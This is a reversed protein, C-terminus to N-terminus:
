SQGGRFIATMGNATSVTEGSAAPEGSDVPDSPAACVPVSETDWWYSGLMQEDTLLFVGEDSGTRTSLDVHGSVGDVTVVNWYHEEGDLRGAVVVCDIGAMECLLLLARALGESDAQHYILVDYALAGRQAFLAEDQAESEEAVPLPAACLETLKDCVAELLTRQEAPSLDESADDAPETSVTEGAEVATQASLARTEAEALLEQAALTLQERMTSLAEAEVGYDVTLEVIRQVGSEPYVSASFTPRVPCLSPDAAWAEEALEVAEAATVSASNFQLALATQGAALAEAVRSRLQSLGSLAEVGAVEEASRRYTIYITAQYYSVIRSLDYSMYDVAYAGLATGSKVEWCAAAIDQGIDGDYSHFQLVASEEHARLMATLARRLSAYDRINEDTDTEEAASETEASYDSVTYYEREFLGGCGATLVLAALLLAAIARKM